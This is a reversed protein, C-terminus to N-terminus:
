FYIELAIHAGQVPLVQGGHRQREGRVMLGGALPKNYRYITDFPLFIAFEIKTPALATATGEMDSCNVM